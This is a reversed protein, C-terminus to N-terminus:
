TKKQWGKKGRLARLMREDYFKRKVVIVAKVNARHVDYGEGVLRAAVRDAERTFREVEFDVRSVGAM